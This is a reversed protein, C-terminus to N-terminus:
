WCPASWTGQDGHGGPLAADAALGAAAPMEVSEGTSGRDGDDQGDARWRAAGRTTPACNPAGDYNLGSVLQCTANM